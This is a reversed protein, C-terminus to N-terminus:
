AMNALLPGPDWFIRYHSILGDPNFTFVIIGALPVAAGGRVQGEGTWRVAVQDQTQYAEQPHMALLGLKTRVTRHIARIAERSQVGTGSLTGSFVAEDAFCRLHAEEEGRHFTRFYTELSRQYLPDIM